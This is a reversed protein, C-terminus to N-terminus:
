KTSKLATVNKLRREREEKRRSYIIKQRIANEVIRACEKCRLMRPSTRLILKNCNQCQMINEYNFYRSYYYVVNRFDSIEICPESGDSKINVTYFMKYSKSQIVDFYDTRIIKSMITHFQNTDISLKSYRILGRDSVNFPANNNYKYLCLLVFAMKEVRYNNFSKIINLENEYIYITKSVLPGRNKSVKIINNLEKEILVDSYMTTPYRIKELLIKKIEEDTKNIGMLYRSLLIAKAFYNSGSIKDSNYMEIANDLEDFNM